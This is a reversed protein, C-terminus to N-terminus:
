AKVPWHFPHSIEDYGEMRSFFIKGEIAAIRVTIERDSPVNTM